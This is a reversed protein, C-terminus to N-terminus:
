KDSIKHQFRVTGGGKQVISKRLCLNSASSRIRCAMGRHRYEMLCKMNSPICVAISTRYYSGFAKLHLTQPFMASTVHERRWRAHMNGRRKEVVFVNNEKCTFACIESHGLFANALIYFPLRAVVVHKDISFHVSQFAFNKSVSHLYKQCSHGFIKTPIHLIKQAWPCFNQSPTCVNKVVM